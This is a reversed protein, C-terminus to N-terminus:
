VLKGSWRAMQQQIFYNFVVKQQFITLDPPQEKGYKSVGNIKGQTLGM